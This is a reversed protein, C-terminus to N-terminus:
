GGEVLKNFNYIYKISDFYLEKAKGLESESMGLYDRMNTENYHLNALGDHMSMMEGYVHAVKMNYPEEQRTSDNIYNVLQHVHYNIMSLESLLATKNVLYAPPEEDEYSSNEHSGSIQQARINITYCAFFFCFRVLHILCLGAIIKM